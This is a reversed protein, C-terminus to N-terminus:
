RIMIGLFVDLNRLILQEVFDEELLDTDTRQHSTSSIVYRLPGYNRSQWYSM